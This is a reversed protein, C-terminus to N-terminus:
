PKPKRKAYRKPKRVPIVPGTIKTYHSIEHPEYADNGFMWWQTGDPRQGIYRAITYHFGILRVRVLYQGM